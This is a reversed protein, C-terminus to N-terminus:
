KAQERQLARRGMEEIWNTVKLVRDLSIDPMSIERKAYGALYEESNAKLGQRQCVLYCISEAEIEKVRGDFDRRDSWRVGDGVMGLHGSFIHGLEHALTSYQVPLEHTTNVHVAFDAPLNENGILRRNGSTLRIATGAHLFSLPKPLVAIKNIRCNGVTHDWRGQSIMGSVRFPQDYNAPLPEGETDALDYVFLVPSMPALIIMPSSDPKVRRGFDREWQRPTRVFTVSPNQMHLLFCNFPSYKPFRAIFRMLGLYEKSRRYRNSAHFLQDLSSRDRADTSDAQSVEQDDGPLPIQLSEIVPEGLSPILQGLLTFVKTQLEITNM